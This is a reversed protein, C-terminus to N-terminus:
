WSKEFTPSFPKAAAKALERLVKPHMEDSLKCEDINLNRLHDHVEDKGVMPLVKSERDRDQQGDVQSTHSSINGSCVSPFFNSCVEDKQEDISVIKKM